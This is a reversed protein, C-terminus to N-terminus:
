VSDPAPPAVPAPQPHEGIRERKAYSYGLLAILLLAVAIGYYLRRIGFIEALQGAIAVGIMQSLTVASIASSNVRGLMERPSEEQTFSQLPILVGAVAAGLFFSMGLVFAGSSSSALLFVGVSVGAIGWTVMSVRSVKQAFKGILTAGVITGVGIVSVLGGFLKSESHLIDRVFIAVLANFAGLAFIAAASAIIVFRLAAHTWIFRLGERLDAFATAVGGAAVKPPRAAHITFLLAASVGFTGADLAFCLKEGFSSILFGAAAPGVIKTLHITQSNLANAVLLEEKQVLLPIMSGQAPLFFASFVSLLAMLACIHWLDTAFILGFALLCRVLDSAVMTRKLDWRDVLVGAVPGVIALPAVFSAFVWAMDNATGKWRFTVMSFIALIALWDGFSSVLQAVWLLLFQRNRLVQGFTVPSSM